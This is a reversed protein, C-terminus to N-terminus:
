KCNSRRSANGWHVKWSAIWWLWPNRLHEVTLDHIVLIMQNSISNTILSYFIFARAYLTAYDRRIQLEISTFREIAVTVKWSAIWWLWPNRLHEVTLDHIVLIMQNSISNFCTSTWLPVQWIQCSLSISLPKEPIKKALVTGQQSRPWDKRQGWHVKWSAIWWLWPNRLHEVTLDHIV